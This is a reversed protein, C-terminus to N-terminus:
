AIDDIEFGAARADARAVLRAHRSARAWVFPELRQWLFPWLDATSTAESHARRLDAFAGEVIVHIQQRVSRDDAVRMVETLGARVADPDAHEGM